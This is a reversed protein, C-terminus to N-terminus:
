RNGSKAKPMPVAMPMPPTTVVPNANKKFKTVESSLVEVSKLLQADNGQQSQEPLNEVVFDPQVGVKEMNTGTVTFVGTRPLRLRSGDILTTSTTGIVYGGTPVGVLKGYGLTRYASPFIEADSYSRQNILVTTPKTWKRDDSRLVLGDGGERRRFITHERAGLYNLVKDHTFGGGNFRVDIIIGDKDFHDSYLSRVFKELGNDDMSPIHIYGLKGNSAKLVAEQNQKVWRDYVLPSITSNSVGRVLVVTSTKLDAPDDAVLLEVMSNIKGNLLSSVNVSDKIAVKNIAIVFSGPKLKSGRVDAPGRELIAKVKLGVGRYTPDFEIGLDATTEAPSTSSGSIGLHSANLEGLMLSILAYLDEKSTVHPVMTRYTTRVKNWDAGHHTADYFGEGLKRWSQEFIQMYEVDRDINMEAAFSITKPDAPPATSNLTPTAVRLAGSKDLFALSGTKTWRMYRPALNGQTLRVNINGTVSVLWLDDGGTSGRYAVLRGNKSIVANRAQNSGLRKTRQHIDDLDFEKPVSFSPPALGTSLPKTLPIAYVGMNGSRLSLFAIHDGGWTVDMNSTAYRTINLPPKSGDAPILYLESAFFPDSASYVLWKSDPSWDYDGVQPTSVIQKKNSGDAKMTWLMGKSIYAITNGDPSFAANTEAEPSNTLLKLKYKSASYLDTAKPEDITVLLLDEQGNRDSAFMLSKSDPAWNIGHEIGRTTTLRKTTGGAMPTLFIEGHVVLAATKDDASLAFESANDTFRKKEVPNSKDDAFVEITVVQQKGNKTDLLCINPGCEYVIKSGGHAIKAKRVAYDKHQTVSKPPALKSSNVASFDEPLEQSVINSLGNVESVYYLTKRNPHWMPSSDQGEFPTVLKAQDGNKTVLWLDDDSSGRYGQRYWTGSGRTIVVNGTTPHVAIEKAELYPLKRVFGGTVPIEYLAPTSPYTVERTSLFYISKGDNSWGSVIDTASDFTLRTPRGGMASVVFVDYQGYRNSSFALMKGDPSFSPYYEHASHQTIARAVGGSAPVTWIDGQYSFAITDGNPSIDPTRGFQIPAAQLPTIGIAVFLCIIVTKM